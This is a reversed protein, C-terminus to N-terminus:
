LAAGFEKLCFRDEERGRVGEVRRRLRWNRVCELPKLTYLKKGRRRQEKSPTAKTLSTRGVIQVWRVFRFFFESRNAQGKTVENFERGDFARWCFERRKNNNNGTKNAEHARKQTSNQKTKNSRRGTKLARPLWYGTVQAIREIEIRCIQPISKKQIEERIKSKWHTMM